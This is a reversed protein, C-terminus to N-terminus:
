PIVTLRFPIADKANPSTAAITGSANTVGDYVATWTSTTNVTGTAAENLFEKPLPGNCRIKNLGNLRYTVTGLLKSIGAEFDGEFTGDIRIDSMCSAILKDRETRATPLGPYLGDAIAAAFGLLFEGIPFDKWELVLTGQVHGGARPARLEVLNETMILGGFQSTLNADDVQGRFVITGPQAASGQPPAAGPASGTSGANGGAAPADAPHTADWVDGALDVESFGIPSGESRPQLRKVSQQFKEDIRGILVEKVVERAAGHIAVAQRQHGNRHAAQVRQYAADGSPDSITDTDRVARSYESGSDVVELLAGGVNIATFAASATVLVVGVVWGVAALM